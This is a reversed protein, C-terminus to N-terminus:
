FGTSLNLTSNLSTLGMRTSNLGCAPSAAPTTARHDEAQDRARTLITKGAVSTSIFPHSQQPERSLPTNYYAVLEALRAELQGPLYYHVLLIQNKLSRRDREFKDHTM